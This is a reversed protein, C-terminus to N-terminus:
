SVARALLPGLPRHLNKAYAKWDQERTPDVRLARYTLRELPGVVPTLFVRENRFVKAMYGGLLPM